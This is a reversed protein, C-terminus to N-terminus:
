ILSAYKRQIALWIDATRRAVAAEEGKGLRELTEAEVSWYVTTFRLLEVQDFRRQGPSTM